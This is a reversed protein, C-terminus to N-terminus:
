FAFSAKGGTYSFFGAGTAGRESAGIRKWGICNIRVGSVQSRFTLSDSTTQASRGDFNGASYSQQNKGLGGKLHGAAFAIGSLL